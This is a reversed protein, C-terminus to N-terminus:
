ANPLRQLVRNLTRPFFRKLYVSVLERGGIYVEDRHRRVAEIVKDALISPELGKRQNEDMIGYKSGDGRLANNSIETRIYGPCVITVNLGADHVESRLVDFFGHLAHKSAAYASRRPAGFKGALSSMVVIHGTGREVMGPLVAKTLAVAAFYNVEMLRRDVELTTDAVRARQSIGANNVLIDVQGQALVHAAATKVAANDALDFAFVTHSEPRDCSLRVTELADENRGSLILQAGAKAFAHALAKGIGSSAGTIWVTKKEFTM